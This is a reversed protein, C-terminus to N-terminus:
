YLYKGVSDMFPIASFRGIYERAGAERCEREIDDIRHIKEDLDQSGLESVRYYSYVLITLEKFKPLM